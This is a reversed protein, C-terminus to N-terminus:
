KYNTQFFLLLLMYVWCLQRTFKPLYELFKHKCCIMRHQNISQQKIHFFLIETIIMILDNKVFMLDYLIFPSVTIFWHVFAYITVHILPLNDCPFLPSLHYYPFDQRTVPWWRGSRVYRQDTPAVALERKNALPTFYEM